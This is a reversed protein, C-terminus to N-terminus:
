RATPLMGSSISTISNTDSRNHFGGSPGRASSCPTARATPSQPSRPSAGDHLHDGNAGAKFDLPACGVVNGYNHSRRTGPEPRCPTAWTRGLTLSPYSPYAPDAGSLNLRTAKAPDSPCWLASMGVGAITINSPHTADTSVNYANFLAGQEFFPLMRSLSACTRGATPSRLAPANHVYLGDPPYCGNASEYNMAALALQKLNNTCQM